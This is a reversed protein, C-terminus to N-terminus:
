FLFLLIPIMFENLSDRLADHLFNLHKKTKKQGVTHDPSHLDRLHAIKMMTVIDLFTDELDGVCSCLDPNEM